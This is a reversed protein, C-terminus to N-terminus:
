FGPLSTNHVVVSGGGPIAGGYSTPVFSSALTGLGSGIGSALQGNAYGNMIANNANAAGINTAGTGIANAMNGNIGTVANGYNQGLAGVSGALNSGLAGQTSSLSSGLQGVASGYSSGLNAMNNAYATGQGALSGAATAGMNQQQGLMNMYPMFYNSLAMNQVYDAIGKQAAGSQEMGHAAYQNNLANMAQQTQFQIGASNAFNNLASAPPAAPTPAPTTHQATAANAAPAQHAATPILDAFMTM